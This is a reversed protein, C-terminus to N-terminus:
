LTRVHYLFALKHHGMTGGAMTRYHNDELRGGDMKGVVEKNEVM